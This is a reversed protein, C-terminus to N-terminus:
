GTAASRIDYYEILESRVVVQTYWDHFQTEKKATIGLQATGSSASDDKKDDKKVAPKAAKAAPKAGDKAGAAPADAAAAAALAALDLVEVKHGFKGIFTKLEAPTVQVTATNVLPHVNIFEAAELAKDLIVVVSKKEDNMVALPTVSGPAVGLTALLTEASEMRMPGGTVGLAKALGGLNVQNEAAAVVLYLQKKKDKVFLCKALRGPLSGAAAKHEEANMVAAHETLRWTLNQKTFEEKAKSFDVPAASM